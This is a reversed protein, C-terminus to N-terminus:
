AISEEGSCYPCEDDIRNRAVHWRLHNGKKGGLRKAERFIEVQDATRQWGDWDHAIVGGDFADDFLGCKILDRRITATGITKWKGAPVYGDTLYRSAYCWAEVIAWKAAPTLGVVKPHDPLKDDVFIFTAGDQPM